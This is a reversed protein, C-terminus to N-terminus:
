KLELKVGARTQDYFLILGTPKAGAPITFKDDESLKTEEPAANVYVSNPAIKNGNDLELRFDSTGFGISNGGIANKNTLEIKYTLEIGASTGDPNSLDVAKIDKIKVSTEKKKGLLVSEPTATVVYTKPEAIPVASETTSETTAESSTTDAEQQDKKCSYTTLIASLTRM